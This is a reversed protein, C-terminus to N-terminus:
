WRIQFGVNSMRGESTSGTSFEFALRNDQKFMLGFSERFGVRRGEWTRFPDYHNSFRLDFSYGLDFLVPRKVIRPLTLRYVSFLSPKSDFGRDDTLYFPRIEYNTQASALTALAFAILLAFQKM